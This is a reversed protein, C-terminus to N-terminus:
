RSRPDPVALRTPRALCARSWACRASRPRHAFVALRGSSRRARSV